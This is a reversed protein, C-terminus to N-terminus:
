NRRFELNIYAGQNDIGRSSEFRIGRRPKAMENLLAEIYGAMFHSWANGIKGRFLTPHYIQVLIANESAKHNVDLDGWGSTEDNRQWLKLRQEFSVADWDPMGGKQIRERYIMPFATAFVKGAASGGKYFAADLEKEGILESIPHLMTQFTEVRMSINIQNNHHLIGNSSFVIAGRRRARDIVILSLTLGILASVALILTPTFIAPNNIVSGVASAVHADLYKQFSHLGVLSAVLYFVVVASVVSALVVQEVRPAIGQFSLLSKLYEM